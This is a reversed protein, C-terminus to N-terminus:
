IETHYNGLILPGGLISGWIGYDKNYPGRLVRM